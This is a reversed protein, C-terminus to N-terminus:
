EKSVVPTAAKNRKLAAVGTILIGAGVGLVAGIASFSALHKKLKIPDKLKSGTVEFITETKPESKNFLNKVSSFIGGLGHPKHEATKSTVTLEAKEKIDGLVHSLGKNINKLFEKGEAQKSKLEEAFEIQMNKKPFLKANVDQLFKKVPNKNEAAKGAQKEVIQLKLSDGPNALGLEKALSENNKIVKSVEKLTGKPSSMYYCTAAGIAGGAVGSGAYKAISSKKDSSQQNGTFKLPQCTVKNNIM